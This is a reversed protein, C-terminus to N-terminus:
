KMKLKIVLDGAARDPASPTPSPEGFAEPVEVLTPENGPNEGARPVERVRRRGCLERLRLSATV